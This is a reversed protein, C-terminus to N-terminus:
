KRTPTAACTSTPAAAIIVTMMRSVRTSDRQNPTGSFIPSNIPMPVAMQPLEAM